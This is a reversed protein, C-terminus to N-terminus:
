KQACVNCYDSFALGTWIRPAGFKAGHMATRDASPEEKLQLGLPSTMRPAKKPNSLVIMPDYLDM